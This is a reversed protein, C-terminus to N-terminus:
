TISTLFPILQSSFLNLLSYTSFYILQSTLLNLLSYTSFSNPSICILSCVIAPTQPCLRWCTRITHRSASPKHAFGCRLALPWNTLSALLDPWLCKSTAKSMFWALPMDYSSTSICLSSISSYTSPLIHALCYLCYLCYTQVIPLVLCYSVCSLLAYECYGNGLLLSPIYECYLPWVHPSSRVLSLSPKVESEVALSHLIPTSLM